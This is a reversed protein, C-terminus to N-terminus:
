IGRINSYGEPDDNDVHLKEDHEPHCVKQKPTVHPMYLVVVHICSSSRM